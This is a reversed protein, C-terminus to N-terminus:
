PVSNNMASAPRSIDNIKWYVAYREHHLQYFPVLRIERGEATKLQFTLPKGKVAKARALAADPTGSLVPAEPLPLRAFDLQDRAQQGQPPLGEVGLEGALVVPGYLFAIHRADGPLTELRLRMPLRVEVKDHQGWVREITLYSEPGSALKQKRGNVRVMIEGAWAPRRIHLAFKAPSACDFTLTTMEQEPFRTEQRVTVGKEAWHLESPIFLNVYLADAGHFYITDGYKAHNEMGTGVCCWFSQLPTSYTKFRGTQLPVFYTMMGSEPDQSALIQNYLGREYFDMLTASSEWEFLHRTLKLMNYTNCTEATAPSLHRSFDNTPFFHERDSDGGIVYSRSSAVRQWFFEAIDHFRKDGTLEYQRAAGTIKPIQTNAHLGDLKDEGAALPAFVKEHNFAQALKLHDPNGTVAYLNALVENMGGHENGLARQMEEASLRDVRFKLWDAMRTLVDLAQSNGCYQHTDLLGAMIKHLTYYPAWVRQARDVRDFLSEPYASLFGKNFGQAPMAEQCKALEAVIYGTRKKLEADGTSAYMLACASLYHGVSHGRLECNTQEWGGLPEASSPLGATVRFNHLLRDADLSLLYTKDSLMADRFPGDLLRVDALPFPEAKLAIVPSIKEIPAAASAREPSGAFLVLATSVLFPSPPFPFCFRKM